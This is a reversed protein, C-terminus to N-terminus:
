ASANMEEVILSACSRLDGLTGNNDVVIDWGGYNDMATESEHNSAGQIQNRNNRHIHILTAGMGKLLNAENPFRCDTIVFNTDPNNVIHRVTSHFLIDGSLVNRLSQTGLLQLILRPTIPDSFNDGLREQWFPDVVEKLSGYLQEDSFGFLERAANKLPDAFAIPVFDHDEKLFNAFTDKGSRAKYGLGIIVQSM